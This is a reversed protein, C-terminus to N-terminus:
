ELPNEACCPIGFAGSSVGCSTQEENEQLLKEQADQISTCTDLLEQHQRELQAYARRTERLEQQCAELDDPIPRSESM